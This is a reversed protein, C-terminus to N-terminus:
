KLKLILLLQQSYDVQGKAFHLIFNIKLNVFSTRLPMLYLDLRGYNNLKYFPDGYFFTHGQGIYYLGSIGVSKYRAELQGLFGAPTQWGPDVGRIRDLSVLAGAKFMLTDLPLYDSLDMGANVNFGGNDRLHFGPEVIAKGALHAMLLYNEIFFSGFHVHGATGFIFREYREESQRSTWDIFVYQRWGKGSYGLYTGHINPRFYNLTDSLFALSNTLLSRRPFSGIYFDFKRNDYRYYMTVDPLYDTANAGLEYLYNLGVRFRHDTAIDAGLEGWARAGFITQPNDITFYERNDLFGDYGANWSFSQTYGPFSPFLLLFFLLVFFHRM